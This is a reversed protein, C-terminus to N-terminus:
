CAELHQVLVVLHKRWAVADMLQAGASHTVVWFGADQVLPVLAVVDLVQKDHVAATKDRSPRLVRRKRDQGQSHTSRLVQSLLQAFPIQLDILTTKQRKSIEIRARATQACVALSGGGGGWCGM